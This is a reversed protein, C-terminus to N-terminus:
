LLTGALILRAATFYIVLGTVDVLTAVFPGSAIAPDFGLRRMVFPLMSGSLTGWLVVGLLSAAVTWALLVAHDGYTHFAAQWTLIRIVGIAALILGLGLGAAVESRAVRWWDRLRVEGLAMARIVLTTAQSGSNGGSSIILPVFLALVVARAILDEFYGMASATLTESLFLVTLWGARKRIMRALGIQLYPEGLAEVGGLKQIDETAEEEVVDVIDDITVIGRMRNEADVVPVALFGYQRFLRSLEEQDTEERATVTVARMVERVTKDPSAAFLERFSIVGLLHQEADLVYVYYITELRERAQIRLYSIAEDVRLEPRLRAYRPSMLGGAEDEAYALLATVEKRSPEDLLGLLATRSEQPTAQILDAADDPELLRLYGRAEAPGMAQTLDSQDPTPLSLFFEEAAERGLLHFAELREATSLIPWSDAVDGASLLDSDNMAAETENV